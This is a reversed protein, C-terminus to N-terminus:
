TTKRYRGKEEKVFREFGHRKVNKDGLMSKYSQVINPTTVVREIPGGCEPCKELPADKMSQVVEFPETCHQCGKAGEKKRYVYTPM